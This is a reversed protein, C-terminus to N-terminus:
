CEKTGCNFCHPYALKHLEMFLVSVCMVPISDLLNFTTTCATTAFLAGAIPLHMNM